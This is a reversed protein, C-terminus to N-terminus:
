PLRSSLSFCLRFAFIGVRRLSREPHPVRLPLAADLRRV